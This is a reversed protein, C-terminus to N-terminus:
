PTLTQATNWITICNNVNLTFNLIEYPNFVSNGYPIWGTNGDFIILSFSYSGIYSKETVEPATISISGGNTSTYIASDATNSFTPQTLVTKNALDVPGSM